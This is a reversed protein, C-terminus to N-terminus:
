FNAWPDGGPSSEQGGDDDAGREEKERAEREAKDKQEQAYDKTSATSSALESAEDHHRAMEDSATRLGNDHVSIVKSDLNGRHDEGHGAAGDLADATRDKIKEGVRTVREGFSSLFNTVETRLSQLTVEVRGTLEENVFTDLGQMEDSLSTLGAGSVHEAAQDLQQGIAHHTESVMAGLATFVESLQVVVAQRENHQTEALTLSEAVTALLTAHGEQEAGGAEELKQKEQTSTEQLTQSSEEVKPTQETLQQNVQESLLQTFQTLGEALGTQAEQWSEGHQTLTTGFAEMQAEAQQFAETWSAEGEELANLQEGLGGKFEALSALLQELQEFDDNLEQARVEGTAIQETLETIAASIEEQRHELAELRGASHTTAAETTTSTDHEEQAM